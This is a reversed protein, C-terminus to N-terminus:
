QLSGFFAIKRDVAYSSYCGDSLWDRMTRVEIQRRSPAESLHFLIDSYLSLGSSDCMHRMLGLEPPPPALSMAICANADAIQQETLRPMEAVNSLLHLYHQRSTAVSTFGWDSFYSKDASIVPIGHSAAEIAVTGHVTVIADAALMSTLSDQGPTSLRVHKPLDGLLSALTVGGYWFELPHPRLIWEIHTSRRIHEVTCNMWDLFDTFNQMGFTHPFDFWTHAYVIVLPKSSVRGQIKKRADNRSSIRSSTVFSHKANIDSTSGNARSLMYKAGDQSLAQQVSLPLKQYEEYTLHEIPKQYDYIETMKRVRISECYGTLHYSPINRVLSSWVLAAYEVKWPHSLVVHEVEYRSLLRDYIALNRLTEALSTLWQPNTIAPQPHRVIKLVTDYYTYAPLALPLALNILDQHTKVNCLMSRAQALFDDTRLDDEDIFIFNQVGLSRLTECTRDKRNRVVAILQFKRKTSLAEVFIRLRFFHNPNDWLGDVVIVSESEKAVSIPDRLYTKHIKRRLWTSQFRIAFIEVQRRWAKLSFVKSLKSKM